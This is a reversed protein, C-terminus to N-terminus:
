SGMSSDIGLELAKEKADTLSVSKAFEQWQEVTWSVENGEEKQFAPPLDEEACSGALYAASAAAFLLSLVALHRLHPTRRTSVPAQQMSTHKEQLLAAVKRWVMDRNARM